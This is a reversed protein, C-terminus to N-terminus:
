TPAATAIQEPRDHFLLLAARRPYKGETLHLREILGAASEGCCPPNWGPRKAAGAQPLRRHRAQCPRACERRAVARTGPTARGETSSGSWHRGKSNRPPVAARYYYSGKYSIPTPYSEVCIEILEKGSKKVLNVDAMVGLVDRIKNPLDVLLKRADAVGVAKGKDNRGIVLLGGEANAFGCIWKLYEDRWSEKWETQQHERM